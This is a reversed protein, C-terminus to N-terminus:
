LQEIGDYLQKCIDQKYKFFKNAIKKKDNELIFNTKLYSEVLLILEDKSSVVNFLSNIIMNKSISVKNRDESSLISDNEDLQWFIVPKELFLFDFSVSSLDTILMSSKKIAESIKDIEVIEVKSYHKFLSLINPIRNVFQHHLGLYIKNLKREEAMKNLDNLLQKLNKFYMSKEFIELSKSLSPRCSFMVLINKENNLQKINDYRPLGGCVFKPVKYGYKRIMKEITNKEFESSVNVIKFKSQLNALFKSEWNNTIGHEMFVTKIQSIKFFEYIHPNCACGESIYVKCHILENYCKELFENENLPNDLYIVNKVEKEKLEKAFKHKSAILYVSPIGNKQLYLFFTYSDIPENVLSDLQNSVIYIKKSSIKRRESIQKINMQKDYLWNYRKPVIEKSGLTSKGVHIFYLSPHDITRTKMEKPFLVAYDDTKSPVIIRNYRFSMDKEPYNNDKSEVYFGLKDYIRKHRLAVQNNFIYDIKGIQEKVIYYKPFKESSIPKGGRLAGLRIAAINNSLLMSIHSDICLEKQLIWDDETTLVIDGFSFAKALGNNLSAGLGFRKKDTKSIEPVIGNLEFQRILKPIHSSESRDDSIIWKINGSYKLNKCLSDIVASAVITRNHTTMMVSITPWKWEEKKIEITEREKKDPLLVKKAIEPKVIEVNKKKVEKKINEEKKDNKVEYIWSYRRPERYMTHGLTSRGVHIFWLSPDDLTGWKMEVPSYVHFKTKGSNTFSNFRRRFEDEERDATENERYWGIADHIRRHVLMTQNNFIWSNYDGVLCKLGDLDYQNESYVNSGVMAMRIGAISSNNSIAEVYKRLYLKKELFWDDETRLVIDSTKFAEKLGNNMSAGLGWHDKSTTCITPRINLEAFLDKLKCIHEKNSRDDSLIWKLRPYVINKVLSKIVEIAVNTRNHTFIVVPVTPLNTSIMETTKSIVSAINFNSDQKINKEIEPVVIKVEKEEKKSLDITATFPKFETNLRIHNTLRFFANDYLHLNYYKEDLYDISDKLDLKWVAYNFSLQDRHSGNLIEDGWLNMLSICNPDNHNRLLINTEALGYHEPYGEERYRSIQVNTNEFTDKRFRLVALQERYICDRTPHKNVYLFKHPDNYRNFFDLVDDILEINSDIWLSRDYEKLWKNPFVKILRQKKVDSLKSAQLSEPIPFIKWTKSTLNANDTFCIYDISPNLIKVERLSDYNGTICTYVVLKKSM